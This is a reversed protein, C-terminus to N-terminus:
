AGPPPLRLFSPSPRPFHPTAAPGPSPCPRLRFGYCDSQPPKQTVALLVQQHQACFHLGSAEFAANLPATRDNPILAASTSSHVTRLHHRVADITPCSVDCLTCKKQHPPVPRSSFVRLPLPCPWELPHSPNSAGVYFGNQSSNVPPASTPSAAVTMWVSLQLPDM